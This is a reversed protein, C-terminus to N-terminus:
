AGQARNGLAIIQNFNTETIPTNSLYASVTTVLKGFTQSGFVGDVKVPNTPKIYNLATQLRKVNQGQMGQTLPFNDNQVAVTTGPTQPKINGNTDTIATQDEAKKNFFFYYVLGIAVILVVILIIKAKTSM